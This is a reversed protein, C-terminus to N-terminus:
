PRDAVPIQLEYFRRTEPVMPSNYGLLRWDGARALGDRELRREIARRAEAMREATLPGFLGLSLVRTPGLDVVDVRGDRGPEGVHPTGYLFAMDTMTLLEGAEAMSMEVPATMAIEHKQIHRFLTWFTNM